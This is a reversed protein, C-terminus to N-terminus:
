RMVRDGVDIAKTATITPEPAKRAHSRATRPATIRRKPTASQRRASLSARPTRCILSRLRQIPVAAPGTKNDGAPDADPTASRGEGTARRATGAEVRFTATARDGDGGIADIRSTGLPADDPIEIAATANGAADTTM